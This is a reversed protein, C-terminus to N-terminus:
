INGQTLHKKTAVWKGDEGVSFHVIGCNPISWEHNRIGLLCCIAWHVGGHAVILAPGPLALAQNVGERVRDMFLRAEGEAPLPAYMGLTSMERWIKSSCESLNEIEHHIAILRAAIIQKTEQARKMPSVCITQIPLSAIIPEIAKAQTRGTENLPIDSHHDGKHKQELLNHDTQGHRVFIFEKQLIM